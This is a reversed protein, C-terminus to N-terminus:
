TQAQIKKIFVIIMEKKRLYHPQTMQLKIFKPLCSYIQNKIIKINLFQGKKWFLNWLLREKVM